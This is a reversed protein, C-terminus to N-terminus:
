HLHQLLPRKMLVPHCKGNFSACLVGSFAKKKQSFSTKVKSEDSKPLLITLHQAADGKEDWYLLRGRELRKRHPGYWISVHCLDLLNPLLLLLLIAILNNKNSDDFM